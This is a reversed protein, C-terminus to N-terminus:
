PRALVEDDDGNGMMMMMMMMMVLTMSDAFNTLEVHITPKHNGTLVFGESVSNHQNNNQHLIVLILYKIIM